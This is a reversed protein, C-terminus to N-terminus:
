YLPIRVDQHQLQFHKQLSKKHVMGFISCVVAMVASRRLMVEIFLCGSRGSRLAAVVGNRGWKAGCRRFRAERVRESGVSLAFRAAFVWWWGPFHSVAAVSVEDGGGEAGDDGDGGGGAM